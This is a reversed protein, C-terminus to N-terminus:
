TRSIDTTKRPGPLKELESCTSHGFYLQGSQGDTIVDWMIFLSRKSGYPNADYVWGTKNTHIDKVLDGIHFNHVKCTYHKRHQLCSRDKCLITSQSCRQHPM